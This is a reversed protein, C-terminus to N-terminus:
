ATRKRKMPQQEVQVVAFAPYHEKFMVGGCYTTSVCRYFFCDLNVVYCSASHNKRETDLM